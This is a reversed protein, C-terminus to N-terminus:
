PALFVDIVTDLLARRDGESGPLSSPVTVTLQAIGLYGADAVYGIRDATAREVARRM